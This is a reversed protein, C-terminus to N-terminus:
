SMASDTPRSAPFGLGREWVPVTGDHMGAYELVGEHTRSPVQPWSRLLRALGTGLQELFGAALSGEWGPHERSQDLLELRSREIQLAQVESIAYDLLEAVPQWEYVPVPLELGYRHNVSAVNEKWLAQGVRDAIHVTRQVATGSATPTAATVIAASVLLDITDKNFTFASL